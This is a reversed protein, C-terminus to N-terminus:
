FIDLFLYIFQKEISTLLVYYEQLNPTNGKSAPFSLLLGKLAPCSRSLALLLKFKCVADNYAFCTIITVVQAGSLSFFQLVHRLEFGHSGLYCDSPSTVLMHLSEHLVLANGGVGV